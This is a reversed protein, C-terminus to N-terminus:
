VYIRDCSIRNVSIGECVRNSNYTLEIQIKHYIGGSLRVDKEAKLETLLDKRQRMVPKLPNTDRNM